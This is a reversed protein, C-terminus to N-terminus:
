EAPVEIEIDLVVLRPEAKIQELQAKTFDSAVVDESEAGWARGGRRFGATKASVRLGPVKKTKPKEQKPESVIQRRQQRQAARAIWPPSL